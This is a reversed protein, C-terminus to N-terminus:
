RSPELGADLALECLLADYRGSYKTQVKRSGPLRWRYYVYPGHGRVSRVKIWGEERLGMGRRWRRLQRHVNRVTEPDCEGEIQVCVKLVDVVTEPM